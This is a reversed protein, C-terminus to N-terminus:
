TPKKKYEIILGVTKFGQNCYVLLDCTKRFFYISNDYMFYHSSTVYVYM